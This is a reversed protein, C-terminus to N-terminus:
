FDLSQLYYFYACLFTVLLGFGMGASYRGLRIGAGSLPVGVFVGFLIWLIAPANSGVGGGDTAVGQTIFSDKGNDYISLVGSENQYQYGDITSVAAGATPLAYWAGVLLATSSPLM